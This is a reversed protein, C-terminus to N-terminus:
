DTAPLARTPPLPAAPRTILMPPRGVCLLWGPVVLVCLVPLLSLDGVIVVGLFLSLWGQRTVALVMGLVGAGIALGLPIGPVLGHALCGLAVGVFASPFIRGGRFGCTAALILAALKVVAYLLLKANSFGDLGAVLERMQDLGKFLTIEGGIAGLVGLLLGGATLALVPNRLSQFWKHLAPFAYAGAIGLGTAVLVIVTGSVLDVLEFGRYPPVTVSLSPAAILTTTLSGAAGAALPALLQDWLSVGARRTLTESFILAAAVPTGFMAGITGAAGLAVWLEVDKNKLVRSGFWWALAINAATIPNEPGLSVGGGLALVTALLLGPLMLPTMPPAVLGETAPDPGGHGPAYRVVLGVALGIATLVAIIWGGSDPSIDLWDPLHQWLLHHVLEELKSIGLLVASSGVGILVAWPLLKLQGSVFQRPSPTAPAPGAAAEPAM